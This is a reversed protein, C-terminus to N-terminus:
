TVGLARDAEVQLQMEYRRFFWTGGLFGIIAACGGLIALPRTMNEIAQGLWYAGLAFVLSWVLGGAANFFLFRGWPLLNVGALLAAFTRLFAVFRGFFVIKGGHRLFLYQGLRLRALTLGVRGGHTKLFDLGYRRGIWYGINDGIIAAATAVLVLVFIDLRGTNGAYLAATVLATEGPCPVGASELMVIVFVLWYGYQAVLGHLSFAEALSPM